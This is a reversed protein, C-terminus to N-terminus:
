WNLVTEPYATLLRWITETYEPTEGECWRGKVFECFLHIPLMDDINRESVSASSMPTELLYSIVEWNGGRCAHHLPYNKNVDCANLRDTGILEALYKVVGLPSFQSAIDLPLMGSGNPVNVADPNGKVLLKISGLPARSGIAGHLPLSGVFDRTMMVNQDQAQRAYNMQTQLFPILDQIRQYCDKNYVEGTEPNVSEELKERIVDIPLKGLRNRTLIAEPYLDFLLKTVSSMHANSGFHTNCNLIIHLPLAGGNGQMFANGEDDSVVPKSLCKPDHLLLFKIIEATNKEHNGVAKHIPLKGYNDRMHLSEPYLGFLYEVTDPRGLGCANHFPLSGTRDVRKVAEPYADVLIKCFAKSKNSVAIHLPLSDNYYDSQTSVSDPHAELLLRLIDIAVEDDMQTQCLCYVPLLGYMNQEHISDPCVTLLLEITRATMHGNACAVNLPTQDRGDKALLSSPNLEVLYEVVDYMDGVSKNHMLVQIPTGEGYYAVLLLTEPHATVMKEVINLDINSTRSLYFHLPTGGYRNTNSEWYCIHTYLTDDSKEILLEIVENPCDKNCCALHLPYAASKIFDPLELLYQVASPYLDLLHQVIELTVNKNMCVKHLFSSGELNCSNLSILKTMSSLKDISLDDSACFDELEKILTQNFSEHQVDRGYSSSGNNYIVAPM